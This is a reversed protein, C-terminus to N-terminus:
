KSTKTGGFALFIDTLKFTENNPPDKRLPLIDTKMVLQSPSVCDNILSKDHSSFSGV